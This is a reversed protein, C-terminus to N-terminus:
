EHSRLEQDAHLTFQPLPTCCAVTCHMEEAVLVATASDDQGDAEFGAEVALQLV